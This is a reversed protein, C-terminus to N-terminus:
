WSQSQGQRPSCQGGRWHTEGKERGEREEEDDVVGEVGGDRGKGGAQSVVQVSCVDLVVEELEVRGDREEFRTEGGAGKAGESGDAGFESLSTLLECLDDPVSAEVGCTLRRRRRLRKWMRECM